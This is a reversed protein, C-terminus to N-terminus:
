HLQQSCRGSSQFLLVVCIVQLTCPFFRVLRQLHIFVFYTFVLTRGNRCVDLAECLNEQLETVRRLEEEYSSHNDLVTESVKRSVQLGPVLLLVNQSTVSRFHLQQQSIKCSGATAQTEKTRLRYRVTASPGCTALFLQAIFHCDKLYFSYAHTQYTRNSVELEYQSANFTASEYYKPDVSKLVETEKM